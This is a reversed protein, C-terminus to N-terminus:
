QQEPISSQSNSSGSTSAIRVYEQELTRIRTLFANWLNELNNDLLPIATIGLRRIHLEVYCFGCIQELLKNFAICNLDKIPQLPAEIIINAQWKRNDAYIQSFEGVLEMLDFLHAIKLLPSVDIEILKGSGLYM